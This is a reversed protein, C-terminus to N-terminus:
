NPTCGGVMSCYSLFTTSARRRGCLGHTTKKLLERYDKTASGQHNMSPPPLHFGKNKKSFRRWRHKVRTHLILLCAFLRRPSPTAAASLAVLCVPPSVGVPVFVVSCSGAECCMGKLQNTQTHTIHNKKLPPPEDCQHCKNHLM